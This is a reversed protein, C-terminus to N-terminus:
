SAGTVPMLEPTWGNQEEGQCLQGALGSGIPEDVNSAQFVALTMGGDGSLACYRDSNPLWGKISV